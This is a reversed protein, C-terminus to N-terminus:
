GIFVVLIEAAEAGGDVLAKIIVPYDTTQAVHPSEALFGSFCKSGSLASYFSHESLEKL